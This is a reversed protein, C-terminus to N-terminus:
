SEPRIRALLWARAFKWKRYATREPIGMISAAEETTMGCFYHYKVIEAASSDVESLHELLEDVVLVEDVTSHSEAVDQGLEVRDRGGGHRARKKRRAHEVLIQRMARAAAGFFHRRGEWELSADSGVLRLYAEHVLDLTQLTMGPPERALKRSALIRLEKQLLLFLQESKSDDGGGLAQLIQSIESM